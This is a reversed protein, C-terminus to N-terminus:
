KMAELSAEIAAADKTVSALEKGALAAKTKAAIEELSKKKAADTTDPIAGNGSNKCPDIEAKDYGDGAPGVLCNLTHHLHAHATSIDKASASFGAHTAATNIETAANDAANAAFPFVMLVVSFAAPVFSNKLTYMTQM